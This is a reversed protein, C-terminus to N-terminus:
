RPHDDQHVTVFGTLGGSPIDMPSKGAGGGDHIQGFTKVGIVQVVVFQRLALLIKKELWDEEDSFWMGILSSTGLDVRTPVAQLPAAGKVRVLVSPKSLKYVKGDECKPCSDGPKLSPHPIRVKEAGKYADAGNRGHGNPKEKKEDEDSKENSDPSQTDNAEESDPGEKGLVQRTKETTTIGFLQRLRALTTNKQELETTLWALTEIAARLTEHDETTLESAQARDLIAELEEIKLDVRQPKPRRPKSPQRSKRAKRAKRRSM